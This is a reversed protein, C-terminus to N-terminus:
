ALAALALALGLGVLGPLAQVFFIQRNVTLAGYIGAVAVFAFLYIRLVHAGLFDVGSLILGLGLLLNYVGQNKALSATANAREETM